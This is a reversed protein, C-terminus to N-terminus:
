LGRQGRLYVITYYTYVLHIRTTDPNCTITLAGHLHLDSQRLLHYMTVSRFCIDEWQLHEPMM